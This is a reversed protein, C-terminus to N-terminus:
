RILPGGDQMEHCFGEPRGLLPEGDAVRAMTSVEHIPVYIPWARYMTGSLVVKESENLKNQMLCDWEAKERLIRRTGIETLAIVFWTCYSQVSFYSVARLGLKLNM